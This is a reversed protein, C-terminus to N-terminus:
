DQDFFTVNGTEINYMAGVIKIKGGKELETLVESEKRLNELTLEVNKSSVQNVFAANKSTRESVEKPEKVAEVAPHIKQLLHSLNGLEVHDCAGKVAGCGTHGLVVVLQAGAIKAGFEISGLVDKSVVNGAVRVSFMDGLGQDFVFEVPVRSDICSLITVFPFQGSKTRNVQELLNQNQKLNEQFRRNGEKLFQLAREPTITVQAEHSHAKM